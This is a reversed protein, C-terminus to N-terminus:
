VKSKKAVMEAEENAKRQWEKRAEEWFQREREVARAAM